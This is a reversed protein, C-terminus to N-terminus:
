AMNDANILLRAKLKIESYRDAALRHQQFEGGTPFFDTPLLVKAIRRAIRLLIYARQRFLLGIGFYTRVVRKQTWPPEFQDVWAAIVDRIAQRASESNFLLEEGEVFYQGEWSQLLEPDSSMSKLARTGEILRTQRSEIMAQDLGNTIRSEQGRRIFVDPMLEPFKQIKVGNLLARMHLDSDDGYLVKENFGGLSEFAEKRWLPSSTHWPPDSRLFRQLDDDGELRNWCCNTDGPQQHFLMVPFVWADARSNGELQAVRQSLCWPALIDDSDIFLLFDGRAESAGLNRCRSPGKVGDTRELIEIRDSSFSRLKSFQAEESGDDVLLVEWNKYDQAEISVITRALLDM